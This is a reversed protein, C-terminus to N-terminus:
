LAPLCTQLNSFPPLLQSPCYNMGHFEENIQRTTGVKWFLTAYQSFLRRLQAHTRCGQTSPISTMPFGIIKGVGMTMPFGIIKGVGMMLSSEMSVAFLIGGTSEKMEYVIAIPGQTHSHTHFDVKLTVVAGIGPGCQKMAKIAQSEQKCNRKAM